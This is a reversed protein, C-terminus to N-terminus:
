IWERFRLPKVTPNSLEREIPLRIKKKLIASRAFTSFSVNASELEQQIQAFEEPSFRLTKRVDKAMKQRQEKPTNSPRLGDVLDICDDSLYYGQGLRTKNVYRVIKRVLVCYVCIPFRRINAVSM